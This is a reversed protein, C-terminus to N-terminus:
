RLFVMDARVDHQLPATAQMQDHRVSVLVLDYPTGADPAAVVAVKHSVRQGTQADELILGGESLEDVRRRRACLTASHGAELLRGAYVSGIVGAGV